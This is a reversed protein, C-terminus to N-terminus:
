SMLLQYDVNITQGIIVSVPSFVDHSLMTEHPVQATPIWAGFLATETIDYALTAIASLMPIDIKGLGSNWGGNGTSEKNKESEINTDQRTAPTVGSGVAIRSGVVGNNTINFLQTQSGWFRFDRSGSTTTLSVNSSNGSLFALLFKGYNDNLIDDVKSMGINKIEQEETITVLSMAKSYNSDFYNPFRKQFQELYIKHSEDIVKKNKTQGIFDQLM